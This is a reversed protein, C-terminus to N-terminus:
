GRPLIGGSPVHTMRPPADPAQEVVARVLAECRGALTDPPAERAPLPPLFSVEARIRARRSLRLLHPLFTDEGLFPVDADTQGEALFRLAVPQVPTGALVAAEFLRARFRRVGTGDTTTGEPFLVVSEGRRLTWVMELAAAEAAGRDARKLFLTGARAALWGLFPWRRVEAKSLFRAPVVSGLVPIDLWSIHNCVFLVPGPAPHGHTVVQVALIRCAERHWWRILGALRPRRERRREGLLVVALLAGLALHGALRGLRLASRPWRM